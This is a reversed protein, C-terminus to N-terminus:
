DEHTYSQYDESFSSNEKNILSHIQEEVHQGMTDCHKLEYWLLRTIWYIPEEHYFLDYEDEMEDCLYDVAIRTQEVSWGLLGHFVAIYDDLVSKCVEQNHRVVPIVKSANVQISEVFELHREEVTKDLQTSFNIRTTFVDEELLICFLRLPTHGSHQLVAEFLERRIGNVSCHTRIARERPFPIKVQSLLRQRHYPTRESPMIHVRFISSSQVDNKPNPFIEWDLSGKSHYVLFSKPVEFAIIKDAYRM